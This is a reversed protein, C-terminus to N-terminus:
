LRNPYITHGSELPNMIRVVAHGTYSAFNLATDFNMGTEM